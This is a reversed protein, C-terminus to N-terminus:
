PRLAANLGRQRKYMSVFGRYPREYAAHTSPDPVFTRDVAVAAAAQAETLAGLSLAATLAAGRLQATVPDAVREIRRGTVDAHIQCWLDSQAGGGIFRLPDLPNGVFKEVAALLWRTNFAVGELVARTLDARTTHLALNHWGGRAFRDDVPSRLGALWPTFLVGNSGAPSTAALATLEDYTGGLVTDRAWTLALGAVEHNNAILYRDPRLGPVTAVSRLVDTKKAAVPASIWTTTSVAFHGVHDLLAGSGVTATLLDTTGAIVPVGRSLGLRDAVADLVPGVVSATPVLPPLKAPDVGALRVLTPDYELREPTRNDTLWALTMSNPSAAARGTFRMTLYDVPEMFWSSARAVAPDDHQIALINSIPDGGNPSPAGGTRRIWTAVRTPHYGLAPGGIAAKTYPAGRTDLFLRCPGTPTGDAAVPVTSGWQGTVAIAEVRDAAVAGSGLGARALDVVADWWLGADQTARGTSDRDTPVTRHESWLLRGDLTAIGVKPGGTGLDVVLALRDGVAHSM